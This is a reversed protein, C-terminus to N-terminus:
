RRVALRKGTVLDVHGAVSTEAGVEVFDEAGEVPEQQSRRHQQHQRQEAGDVAGRQHGHDRDQDRLREEQAAPLEIVVVVHAKAPLDQDLAVDGTPQFAIDADILSDALAFNWRNWLEEYYRRVLLKNSEISM